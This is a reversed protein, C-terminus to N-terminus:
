AEGFCEWANGVVGWTEAHRGLEGPLGLTYLVLRGIYGLGGWLMGWAKGLGGWADVLKGSTNSWQVMPGDM